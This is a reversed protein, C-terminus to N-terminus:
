ETVVAGTILANIEAMEATQWTMFEAFATTGESETGTHVEIELSQDGVTLTTNAKRDRRIGGIYDGSSSKEYLSNTTVATDTVTNNSWTVTGAMITGLIGGVNRTGVDERVGGPVSATITCGIVKNNTITSTVTMGVIGGVDRTASLIVNKVECSDIVVNVGQQIQGTIGGVKDGEGDASAVSVPNNAVIRTNTVTCNKIAANNQMQGAIGGVRGNGRLFAGDVTVGSVESTGLLNGTVVGTNKCSEGSITSTMDIYTNTFTLNKVSSNNLAAFLGFDNQTSGATIRLNSITYTEEGNTGDLSINHIFTFGQALNDIAETTEGATVEYKDNVKATTIDGLPVWEYGALDINATLKYYVMEEDASSHISALDEKTAIAYPNSETGANEAGKVGTLTKSPTITGGGKGVVTYYVSITVGRYTVVIAKEGPTSTDLRGDVLGTVSLISDNLAVERKNDNDYTIELSFDGASIKEDQNYTAAPANIFRIAEVETISCAALSALLAVAALLAVLLKSKKM